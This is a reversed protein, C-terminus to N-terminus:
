GRYGRDQLELGPVTMLAELLENLKDDENYRIKVVRDRSLIIAQM